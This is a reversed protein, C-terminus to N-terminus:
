KTQLRNINIYQISLHNFFDAGSDFNVHRFNSSRTYCLKTRESDRHDTFLSHLTALHQMKNADKLAQDDSVHEAFIEFSVLQSICRQITAIFLVIKEPM